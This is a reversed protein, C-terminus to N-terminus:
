EKVQKSQGLSTCFVQLWDAAHGPSRAAGSLHAKLPLHLTVLWCRGDRFTPRRVPKQLSRGPALTQSTSGAWGGCEPVRLFHCKQLTTLFRARVENM